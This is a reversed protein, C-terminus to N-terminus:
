SLKFFINNIIDYNFSVVQVGDFKVTFLQNTPNWDFICNHWQGDEINGSGLSIPPVINFPSNHNPSGNYQVAIHDNFLDGNSTNQWTDFEIFLSPTIGGYGIGGGSGLQQNSLQQLGFAIGDAGSLDNTGFYLDVDFHFPQNLNVM